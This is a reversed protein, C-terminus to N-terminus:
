REHLLEHGADVTDSGARRGVGVLGTGHLAGELLERLGELGPVKRRSLLGVADKLLVSGLAGGGGASLGGALVRKRGQTLREGGPVERRGLLGKGLDLLCAPVMVVVM